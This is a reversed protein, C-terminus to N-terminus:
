EIFNWKKDSGVKIYDFIPKNYGRVYRHNFLKINEDLELCDVLCIYASDMCHIEKANQIIYIWDFFGGTNPQVRRLTKDEFYEEVLPSGDTHVFCYQGEVLGLSNFLSMEKSMDRNIFFKECKYDFPVDAMKYFQEEFNGGDHRVLEPVWGNITVAGVTLIDMNNQNQQLHNMIQGDEGVIFDLNSLDNYMYKVNEYNRPKVCLLVKEWLSCYHRVIGHCSIHDGLGMHHYIALTEFKKQIM